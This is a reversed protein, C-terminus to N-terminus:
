RVAMGDPLGDDAAAVCEGYDVSIADGKGRNEGRRQDRKGLRNSRSSKM